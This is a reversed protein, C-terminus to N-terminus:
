ARTRWSASLASLLFFPLIFIGTTIASFWTETTEDNYIEYVVFLVM